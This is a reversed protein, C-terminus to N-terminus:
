FVFLLVLIVLLLLPIWVLDFRLTKKLVNQEYIELSDLAEDVLIGTKNVADVELTFLAEESISMLKQGVILWLHELRKEINQYFWIAMRKFYGSLQYVGNSFLGTEMTRNLWAAGTSLMGESFEPRPTKEEDPAPGEHTPAHRRLKWFDWLSVVSSLGLWGVAYLGRLVDINVLYFLGNILIPVFVTVYQFSVSPIDERIILLLRYLILGLIYYVLARNAGLAIAALLFCSFIGSLHTFMDFKTLRLYNALLIFLGLALGLYLSFTQFFRDSAIIPIIRYLLYYGLVPMLIASIWVSFGSVTKRVQLLWLGMPWIALKILIAFLFGAFVWMRISLPLEVAAAIMQTIDLTGAHHNILLISVLLSLDGLRLIQFITIFRKLPLSDAFSSLVTLAALLGVIDLAIYRIMFQGSIFAIFGFSLSLNILIFQYPSLSDKEVHFHLWVMLSLAILSLLYLLLPTSSISFTIPESMFSLPTLIDREGL